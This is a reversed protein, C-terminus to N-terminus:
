SGGIIYEIGVVKKAVKRQPKSSPKAAVPEPRINLLEAVTMAAESMPAEDDPNRLMATLKGVQQALTIKQGDKPTVHVTITSFSRTSGGSSKDVMTQIGTAIVNLRQILPFIQQNAGSGFSLLLDVKDQPQLFGSISNIEDVQVTMARLGDEVKGSFTPSLGGELHAWLLPRGEDIDFDIRQGIAVDYTSGNVANSDAYKEPIERMSLDNALLVEGRVMKRVPVVVQVMPETKDLQGKYYSVQEEIYQKSYFVGGGGLALAFGFMLLQKKPRKRERGGRAPIDIM